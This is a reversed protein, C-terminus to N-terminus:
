YIKAAIKRLANERQPDRTSEKLVTKEIYEELLSRRVFIAATDALGYSKAVSLLLRRESRGLDHRDALHYFLAHPARYRNNYWRIIRWAAIAAGALVLLVAAVVILVSYDSPGQSWTRRFVNDGRQLSRRLRAQDSESQVVFRLFFSMCDYLM